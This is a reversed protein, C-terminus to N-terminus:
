SRNKLIRSITAPSLKVARAIEQKTTTQAMRLVAKRDSETIPKGKSM